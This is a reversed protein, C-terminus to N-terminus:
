VLPKGELLAFLADGDELYFFPLDHGTANKYAKKLISQQASNKVHRIHGADYYYVHGRHSGGSTFIFCM